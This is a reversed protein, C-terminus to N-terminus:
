EKRKKIVAGFSWGKMVTALEIVGFRMVVMLNMFSHRTYAHLHKGNSMQFDLTDVFEHDPLIIIMRGLPKLIREWETLAKIPDILHELSHRSVVVDATDSKIMPLDDISARIDAVRKTDIGIMRSLTKHRGCGLDYIVKDNDNIRNVVFLREPHREQPIKMLEYMEKIKVDDIM